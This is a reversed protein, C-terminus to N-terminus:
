SVSKKAADVAQAAKDKAQDAISGASEELKAKEARLLAWRDAGGRSFPRMM